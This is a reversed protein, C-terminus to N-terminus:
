PARAHPGLADALASNVALLNVNVVNALAEAESAQKHRLTTELDLAAAALKKAGLLASTSKLDHTLRLALAEDGRALAEPYSTPWEHFRPAAMGLLKLLLEANGATRSLAEDLDFTGSLRLKGLADPTASPMMAVPSVPVPRGASRQQGAYKAVLHLLEGKGVPKSLYGDCGAEISLQMDGELANATLAVIPTRPRGEAIELQRIERTATYGDKRPMQVDMLVLDFRGAAFREVAEQGNGVVEIRDLTEKLFAEVVLVNHPNDEALLIDMPARAVPGEDAPSSQALEAVPVVPLAVTFHVTTGHGPESEAWIRGGMMEVLRKSITLGLGTGGFERAIGSDAQAFPEFISDIKDAPIGIGTDMVTFHLLHEEGRLREVRVDVCGKVTFKIANGVLNVLVQALRKRDGEVGVPVEPQVELKLALAKEGIRGELLRMQEALMDRLSFKVPSLEFKGADIKSMDLLDNILALLSHGASNFVEVYQRQREDLRTEALLEAMGLVANMPTRIEHSINALFESKARNAEDAVARQYELRRNEIMVARQQRAAIIAVGALLAVLPALLCVQQKGLVFLGVDLAIVLVLAILSSMGHDGLGPKRRGGGVFAPVLALALLLANWSWVRPKLLRGGALAEFAVAIVTSGSMQGLPTIARDSFFATSGIFVTREAIMERLGEREGLGLAAAVVQDFALTPVEGANSPFLLVARGAEDVPMDLQGIRLRGRMAEAQPPLSGRRAFHAAVPLSPLKYGAVQHVLPMRRLVGDADTAVSILGLQVGPVLLRDTPLILGAWSTSPLAGDGPWAMDRLKAMAVPSIGTSGIRGSGALAVSGREISARLEEDGERPDAFVIDFVVVAAGAERLYETVVAYIDRKFPWSGIVPQLKQLSADDIDIVLAADFSQSRAFLRQHFDDMADTMRGYIPSLAFLASIAWALAPLWIWSPVSGIASALRARPSEPRDPRESPPADGGRTGQEKM